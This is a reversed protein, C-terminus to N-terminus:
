NLSDLTSILTEIFSNFVVFNKRPFATHPNIEFLLPINNTGIGIDMNYLPQPYKSKIKNHVKYYFDQVEAPLASFSIENMSAGRHTNAIMSADEPTRIHCLVITDIMTMIRLDHIGKTLNPIGASTDIFDQGIYGAKSLRDQDIDDYNILKKESVIVGKGSSGSVPKLVIIEDDERNSVYDKISKMDILLTTTPFFNKLLEYENMKSSGFLKFQPSNIIKAPSPNFNPNKVVANYHYIVNAQIIEKNSFVIKGNKYVAVNKFKGNNIYSNIGFAFYFNFKNKARKFFEHYSESKSGDFKPLLDNDLANFWM